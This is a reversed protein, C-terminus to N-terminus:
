VDGLVCKEGFHGGTSPTGVDESLSMPGWDRRVSSGSDVDGGQHSGERLDIALEIYKDM